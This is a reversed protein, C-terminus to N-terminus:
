KNRGQRLEKLKKSLELHTSWDEPTKTAKAEIEAIQKVLKQDETLNGTGEDSKDPKGGQVFSVTAGLSAANQVIYELKERPSFKTPILGRKDEPITKIISDVVGEVTEKYKVLMVEKEKLTKELTTAKEKAAEALKQWEGRAELEKQKREEEEQEKLTLAKEKESMDDLLKRVKPNVKALEELEATTYDTIDIKKGDKDTVEKKQPEVYPIPKGDEGTKPKGDEGKVYKVGGEEIFEDVPDANGNSLYSVVLFRTATNM